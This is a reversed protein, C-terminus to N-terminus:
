EAAQPKPAVNELTKGFRDKHPNTDLEDLSLEGAMVRRKWDQHAPEAAHFEPMVEKAFLEIRAVAEDIGQTPRCDTRALPPFTVFGRRLRSCEHCMAFFYNM